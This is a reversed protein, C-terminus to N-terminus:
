QWKRFFIQESNVSKVKAIEQKLDSQYPDPYRNYGTEYPNENADLFTTAEKGKYEDRASSYPKLNRINERLLAQIDTTQTKFNTM